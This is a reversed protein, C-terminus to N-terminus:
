ETIIKGKSIQRYLYAIEDEDLTDRFMLFYRFYKINGVASGADYGNLMLRDTRATRNTWHVREGVGAIIPDPDYDYAGFGSNNQKVNWWSTGNSPGKFGFAGFNYQYPHVDAALGGIYSNDHIVGMWYNTHYFTSSQSTNSRNSPSGIAGQPMGTIRYKQIYTIRDPIGTNVARMNISTSELNLTYFDETVQEARFFTGNGVNVLDFDSNGAYTGLTCEISDINWTSGSVFSGLATNNTDLKWGAVLENDIVNIDFTNVPLNFYDIIQEEVLAIEFPTLKRDYIAILKIKGRYEWGGDKSQGVRREDTSGYQGTIEDTGVLSGNVRLYLSDTVDAIVSILNDNGLSYITDSSISAYSSSGERYVFSFREYPSDSYINSQILWRLRNTTIPFQSYSLPRVDYRQGTTDSDRSIVTFVTFEDAGLELVDPVSLYDGDGGEVGDFVISGDTNNLTPKNATTIQTSHNDNGSLDDWQNVGNADSTVGYGALHYLVLDESYSLQLQREPYIIFYNNIAQEVEHIESINLKRNYIAMLYIKGNFYMSGGNANAGIVPGSEGGYTAWDGTFTRNGVLEGDFYYELCCNEEATVAYFHKTDLSVYPSAIAFEADTTKTYIRYQVSDSDDRDQTYFTFSSNPSSELTEYFRSQNNGATSLGSLEPVFIVTWEDNQANDIIKPAELHDDVGDFVVAGNVDTTPKSINVSQTAHNGNGSLDNWQSIGNADETIGIGAQHLLLLDSSYPMDIQTVGSTTRNESWFWRRQGFSLTTTILLLILIFLKKTVDMFNVM